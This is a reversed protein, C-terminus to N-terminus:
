FLWGVQLLSLLPLGQNGLQSGADNVQKDLDVYQQVAQVLADANTTLTTRPNRSFQWGLDLGMFYGSAWTWRWGLHPAFYTNRLQVSATIPQALITESRSATATLQGYALGLLFAKKFPFWRVRGEIQDLKGTTSSYSISPLFAYSVQAGFSQGFRFELAGKFPSPLGLLTVSPGFTVPGLVGQAKGYAPPALNKPAAPTVAPVQPVPAPALEDAQASLCPLLFATALILAHPLRM